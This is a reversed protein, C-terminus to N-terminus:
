EGETVVVLSKGIENVVLRPIAVNHVTTKVSAIHAAIAKGFLGLLQHIFELRVWSHFVASESTTAAGSLEGNHVGELLTLALSKSEAESAGVM